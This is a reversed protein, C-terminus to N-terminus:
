RTKLTKSEDKYVNDITPVTSSNIQKGKQNYIRILKNFRVFIGM